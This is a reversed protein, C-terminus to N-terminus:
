PGETSYAPGEPRGRPPAPVAGYPATGSVLIVELTRPGHVGKIRTMEIDSTASPGSITTLPASGFAAMARIGEPVTEVIQELRVVCLHYDPVLTLARSGAEASHRLVITGSLAIALACGTLVGESRDLGYYDLDGERSFEFGTPLWQAPFERPILLGRKGRQSLIGAIVEAVGSESCRHVNAGYDNLRDTFLEVVAERDLAPTSRYERPLASYERARAEASRSPSIASRVRGLIEDRANSM